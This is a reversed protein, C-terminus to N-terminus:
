GTAAARQGRTIAERITRRALKFARALEEQPTGALFRAYIKEDRAKAKKHRQPAPAYTWGERELEEACAKVIERSCRLEKRIRDRRMGARLMEKVRPIHHATQQPRPKPHKPGLVRTVTSANCGVQLAIQSRPVGQTDLDHIRQYDVQRARGPPKM